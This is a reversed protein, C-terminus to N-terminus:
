DAASAIWGGHSEYAELNAAGDPFPVRVGFRPPYLCRGTAKKSDYYHVEGKARNEPLARGLQMRQIGLPALVEKRVYEEYKRGTVTEIIRGLVLYGLNSYSFELGPDFDLPRGMMYRVVDEPAVPLEQKLAMAIKRPIGIPDGSKDRDWGGTHQLCHRVTILHWRPDMKQGAELHPKLRVFKLVPEDLKVKGADVLRLMAVATIPKSISAIRFLSDAYVAQKKEVNALGFGNSYVIERNRSVAISGGPVGHAALFNQMMKDFPAFQRDADASTVNAAFLVAAAASTRKLFNRRTVRM